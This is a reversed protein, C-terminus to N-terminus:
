VGRTFILNRATGPTLDLEAANSLEFGHARFAAEIEQAIEAFIYVEVLATKLRTDALTNGASRIIEAEIGDVDIKVHNPFPLAFRGTLDDLSIGVMGQRNQAEFAREGQTVPRAWSHLAAGPAFNQVYFAGLETRETVALCYPTIVGTLGNLVVNRNLKAYNLAEPEFALVTCNGRLRKAAYLSYQGINAGVDYIVDGEGFYKDIWALTDPEKTTYTEARWLEPNGSKDAGAAEDMHLLVVEEGVRCEIIQAM